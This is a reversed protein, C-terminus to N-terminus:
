GGWFWFNAGAIPAGNSVSDLVLSLIKEFFKDKVTTPTGIKTLSSDRPLGFEEMVVPKRLERAIQLHKDIYAVAKMETVPYTSDANNPNYWGWDYPWLHFTLYDIYKSAHATKFVETSDLSGALGESGSSVLHNPDVQHIFKASVNIWRYYEDLWKAGEKGNGPRPENSLQWSMIAPDEYYYYGSYKNKRTILSYLFSFYIRKANENRYFSNSYNMFDDYNKNPYPPIYNSSDVSWANYQSMGGSWEWNNNLFIVAKMNRKQMESLLFDLGELLNQNYEYPKVQIAPSLMNKVYSAESAGLIRLNTVGISKLHDLERILRKRDGLESSAGLYTAYWFNAGLFYYSKGNLELQTGNVKVFGEKNNVFFSSCSECTLALITLILLSIYSLKM